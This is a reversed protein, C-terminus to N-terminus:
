SRAELLARVMPGLRNVDGAGITFFVDGPRLREAIQRAADDFTEVFEPTPSTIERVLDQAPMGADPAERAAYTGLVFLHDLAEFCTRFGALLYRSRSYTHPQFCAVLRRGPFRARASQLTARVETPHHAYDDMITVGGVDDVHEFRRHAGTFESAAQAARHFDVGARMAMAMAGLANSVNHRGPVQLSVRGLESGDLQVVFDIGGRDNGRLQVARWEADLEGLAFREVRAGDRARAAGIESAHPSDACVFLTGGPLVRKSFSRFAEVFREETGYYDLHDAEVNLILAYRPEYQLFAEAYEDAEVVAFRGTGDRANSGLERSDGGALVLPDLGGRVAMLALLTTTTTKGHTGAVALVDRDAILRQVMEARVLVPIGLSLAALIEPNDDKAAVTTVVLEARGLNSAAHGEYIIAGMGRLREVHESPAIDSGTVIHGRALLVQGIASMHMGGAGILHVRHPIAFGDQDTRSKLRVM